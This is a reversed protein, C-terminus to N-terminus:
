RLYEELLTSHLKRIKDVVKRLYKETEEDNYIRRVLDSIAYEVTKLEQMFSYLEESTKEHFKTNSLLKRIVDSRNTKTKKVLKDLREMEVDNLKVEVRHSAMRRRRERSKRKKWVNSIVNNEVRQMRSAFADVMGVVKEHNENTVMGSDTEKLFAGVAKSCRNM